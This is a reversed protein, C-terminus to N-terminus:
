RAIVWKDVITKDRVTYEVLYSGVSLGRVDILRTDNLDLVKKGVFDMVKVRDVSMSLNIIDSTPNPYSLVDIKYVESSSTVPFEDVMISETTNTVIAPNFDFYIYATNEIKTDLSVDENPKISYTIFGHSEPENTLSDPLYLSSFEFAIAREDEIAVLLNYPHSTSILEFTSMDLYEALTDRIVVNLAYDNGTNQFRITYVLDSTILALNDSRYPHVQKDNPDYSCRHEVKYIFPERRAAFEEQLAAVFCYFQGVQDVDDILPSTVVFDIDLCENPLLDSFNWGVRHDNAIYDPPITFSVENVRLDLDVWVVGSEITTGRNKLTLIFDVEEGCRFRDSTIITQVDSEVTIPSLGIEVIEEFDETNVDYNFESLTTTQWRVDYTNDYELSLMGPHAIIYVGEQRFNKYTKNGNVKVAGLSVLPDDQDNIGNENQDIYFKVLVHAFYQDMEYAGMDPYSNVPMPRPNGEFDEEIGIPIGANLCPSNESPALVYENVFLPNLDIVNEGAFGGKVISNRINIEASSWSNSSLEENGNDWFISNTANLVVDNIQIGGENYALTCHNMNVIAEASGSSSIYLEVPNGENHDIICNNLTLDLPDYAVYIASGGRTNGQLLFNNSFVTSEIIASGTELFDPDLYVGGGSEASNGMFTNNSLLVETTSIYLGGGHSWTSVNTTNNVFTSSDIEILLFDRDIYAGAGFSWSETSTSNGDFSCGVLKIESNPNNFGFTTAYFGGGHCWSNTVGRNNEFRCNRLTVSDNVDVYLGAGYSRIETNIENNIFQCGEIIGSYTGAYIGAGSVADGDGYNDMIILDVLKPSVDELYMGAGRSDHVYGNRITFGKILTEETISQEDNFNFLNSITITRGIREADIITQSAGQVGILLIGDTDSPWIIREYYVGPSVNITTGEQAANLAAQISSYDAPVNISIQASLNFISICLLATTIIIVRKM